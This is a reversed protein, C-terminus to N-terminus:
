RMDLTYIVESHLWVVCARAELRHRCRCRCLPLCSEEVVIKSGVVRDVAGPM